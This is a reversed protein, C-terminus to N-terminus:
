MIQNTSSTKRTSSEEARGACNRHVNLSFCGCCLRLARAVFMFNSITRLRVVSFHHGEEGHATAAAAAAAGNWECWRHEATMFRQKRCQRWVCVCLLCGCACPQRSETDYTDCAPECLGVHWRYQYRICFRCLQLTSSCLHVFRFLFLM